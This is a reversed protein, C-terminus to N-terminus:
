RSGCQVLYIRVPPWESAVEGDYGVASPRGQSVPGPKSAGRQAGGPLRPPVFYAMAAPPVFHAMAAPPVFHAMAAPPM